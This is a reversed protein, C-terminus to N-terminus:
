RKPKATQSKQQNESVDKKQMQELTQNIKESQSSDYIITFKDDDTKKINLAIGEDALKAVQEETLNSKKMLSGKNVQVQVQTQEPNLDSLAQNTLDDVIEFLSKNEVASKEATNIASQAMEEVKEESLPTEAFESLSQGLGKLKDIKEELAQKKDTLTEIKQNINIKQVETIDSNKLKENLRDLKENINELKFNVNLLSCEQLDQVSRAYIIQKNDSKKLGHIFNSLAKAMKQKIQLKKIKRQAKRIKKEAKKIKTGNRQLSNNMQNSIAKAIPNALPLANNKVFTSMLQVTKEEDKQAQKLREIEEQLGKVKDKQRAIAVSQNKETDAIFNQFFEEQSQTIEEAM